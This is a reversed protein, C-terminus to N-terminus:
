GMIPWRGSNQSWAQKRRGFHVWFKKQSLADIVPGVEGPKQGPKLATTHEVVTDLLTENRGVIILVSAAMCRQGAAGAFSVNIDHQGHIHTM